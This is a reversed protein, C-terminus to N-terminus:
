NVKGAAYFTPIYLVRSGDAWAMLNVNRYRAIEEPSLLGDLDHELMQWESALFDDSPVVIWQGGLVGTEINELHAQHFWRALKRGALTDIGQRNLGETQLKGLIQLDAPFDIRSDYDPEALALVQGGSRCVRAMEKLVDVPSILWLLFYHCIVVDFVSNDFPLENGDGNIFNSSCDYENAIKLIHRDLDLGIVNVPSHQHLSKCIVGSGCGVELVRRADSLSARQYLYDRISATWGAQLQYRTHWEAPTLGTSKGM